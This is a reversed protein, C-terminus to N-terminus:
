QLIQTKGYKEHCRQVDLHINGTYSQYAGYWSTCRALFPGPYKALPHFYLRYVVLFIGYATSLLSFWLLVWAFHQLSTSLDMM